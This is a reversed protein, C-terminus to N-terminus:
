QSPEARTRRLVWFCEGVNLTMTSPAGIEEDWWEGDVDLSVGAVVYATTYSQTHVNWKFVVDADGASAGGIVAEKLIDGICGTDGNLRNDAAVLPVSLMTLGDPVVPVKVFGVPVTHIGDSEVRYFRTMVGGSAIDTWMVDGIPWTGPATQWVGILLDDTWEVTYNGDGFERWDLRAMDTEKTIVLWPGGPFEFAGMDVKGSIIRPNGGLDTLVFPPIASTDGSDICPSVPLLRLDDDGTGIVDDPGDADVFGALEPSINGPGQPTQGEVCSYRVDLAPGCGEYTLADNDWLICNTLKALAGGDIGIAMDNGAITCNTLTVWGVDFLTAQRNGTFICNTLRPNSGYGELNNSIFRCSVLAPQSEGVLLVGTASHAQNGIFTCNIISSSSDYSAMGGGSGNVSNGRFTCNAVTPSGSATYMGGGYFYPWQGQQGANGAMITFGDLAATANTWSGTVVHYTNDDSNSFDPGDNGALDGSLITQNAAFDRESLETEGGAFGGYITAGNLLQFTASRPDAPDTRQSPRYIGAAVWIQCSIGDTEGATNLADQLDSFADAWTLGNNTGTADADVYLRSPLAANFEYAGMDVIPPAGNGTDPADPDDLFRPNGSLDMTISQLLAANDGADVCPSGRSLRLNDDETGSAGDWGDADAFLPDAGINGTGGFAGTWGQVCCYNIVPSGGSIQSLESPPNMDHNGWFICNILTPSGSNEIGGGSGETWNGSFTCNVLIPSSNRSIEMGGGGFWDSSNGSFLCNVLTPSSDLNRMGGGGEHVTNGAFACNTLTPNSDYNYMGGGLSGSNGIFACNTLMPNSEYNYMGGGFADHYDWGINGSFICNTFSPNSGESNYVGGGSYESMNDKITCNRFTSSGGVNYIGGGDNEYVPYNADANGATVIFGDLVATANTGSGTVVHYSNEDNNAFDPGDDDNLDGSLITRNAAVDREDLRTEHGAFGGYIAVGSLLQFTAERDGTERDPTYTGAAVWIDHAAGSSGAAANLADQLDAFANAWSTGDNAGTAGADVYFRPPLGGFEYAGMDVIPATGSGTDPINPADVFRPHGDLDIAIAGPVATNDGADICPSDAELHFDQGVWVDDWDADPTGSDDWHGLAIFSPDSEINGDGEFGDQINCYRISATSGEALFVSGDANAWLISNLVTPVSNRCLIGYSRNGAITCNVIGPSGSICRVGCYYSGFIACDRVTVSGGERIEIGSPNSNAITCREITVDSSRCAIGSSNNRSFDCDTVTAVSDQCYVAGDGGSGENDSITCSSIAVNSDQVCAVGCGNAEESTNAVITCNTITAGSAICYIGGGNMYARNGLITCNRVTPSSNDCIIGGGCEDYEDPEAFIARGSTITFGDLVSNEDEGSRFIVARGAKECDIICADAGNQSRLTIAKGDFDITGADETYYAGDAVLVTDGHSAAAVGEHITKFATAWSAGDGSQAVSHDVYRIATLCPQALLCFALVGVCNLIFTRTRM